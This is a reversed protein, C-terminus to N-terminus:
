LSIAEREPLLSRSVLDRAVPGLFGGGAARKVSKSAGDKRSLTSDDVSPRAAKKAAAQIIGPQSSVTADADLGIPRQGLVITADDSSAPLGPRQLGTTGIVVTADDASATGILVTADDASSSEASSQQVRTEAAMGNERIIPSASDWMPAPQQESCATAFVAAAPLRLATTAAAESPATNARPNPWRIRLTRPYTRSTIKTGITWAGNGCMAAVIRSAGRMQVPLIAKWRPLLRAYATLTPKRTSLSAKAGLIITRPMAPARRWKGSANARFGGARGNRTLWPM